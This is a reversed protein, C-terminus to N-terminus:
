DDGYYGEYFHFSDDGEPGEYVKENKPLPRPKPKYPDTFIEKLYKDRLHNMRKEVRQYEEFEKRLEYSIKYDYKSSMIMHKDQFWASYSGPQGFPKHSDFYVTVSIVTEYEDDDDAIDNIQGIKGCFFTHRKEDWIESRYDPSPVIKVWDGVKFNAM